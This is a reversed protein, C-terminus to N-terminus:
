YIAFFNLQNWFYIMNTANFICTLIIMIHYNLQSLSFFIYKLLDLDM